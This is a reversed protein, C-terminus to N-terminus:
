VAEDLKGQNYYSIALFNMAFFTLPHDKGNIFISKTLCEKRIAEVQDLKNQFKNVIALNMLISITLPHYEALKEAEDYQATQM